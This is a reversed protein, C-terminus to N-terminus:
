RKALHGANDYVTDNPSAQISSPPYLEGWRPQNQLPESWCQATLTQTSANYSANICSASWPGLPTVGTSTLNGWTNWVQTMNFGGLISTPNYNGYGDDCGAGLSHSTVDYVSDVCSNYWSGAPTVGNAILNGHLNAVNNNLANMTSHDIETPVYAPGHFWNGGFVKCQAKLTSGDWSINQCTQTYSGSPPSDAFASTLGLTSLLMLGCIKELNKMIFKTKM